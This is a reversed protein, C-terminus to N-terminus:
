LLQKRGAAGPIELEDRYKAVTRRALVCGRQAMRECLKQDSLPRRKDEQRILEKLLAKAAEPSTGAGEGGGSLRRSFFYSLPYTGRACQLYKGSVARSVTSEHTGIREAADAMTLPKLHGGHRFFDEQADLICKACSLLTERRQEVAQIVWKAQKVKGALYEKVQADGSEKLLRTYYPSINLAPLFHSNVSLELRGSVGTVIIDPTVYAPREYRAFKLGPRPDLSRILDCAWRVEEYGAGLTRAILGYRDKSLADLHEQAIRIALPEAPTRRQLQLCLCESLSRAAIGAPDLAQVVTLAQEMTGEPQGFDQALAALDEELRGSADLCGALIRTCAAVDSPLELEALQTLIHHYLSEIQNEGAAYQLLPDIGTEFDQHYYDRNQPDAAELWELRSHLESAEGSDDDHEQFELVPNELAANELYESLEQTAMQLVELSQIMQSSIIQEQKQAVLLDM